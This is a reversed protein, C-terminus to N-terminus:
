PLLGMIKELNELLFRKGRDNFVVMEYENGNYNRKETEMGYEHSQDNTVTRTNGNELKEEGLIGMKKLQKNIETGTIRKSRNADIVKNVAKAFENIGIKGPPLEIKSKEEQSIIFAGPKKDTIRIQGEMAQDLVEQIFFLCRIMRPEQLFSREEIPEGNFPNVGQAVKQIIEKARVLKEKEMGVM